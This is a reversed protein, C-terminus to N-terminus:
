RGSSLDRNGTPWHIQGQRLVALYQEDLILLGPDDDFRGRALDALRQRNRPQASILRAEADDPQQDRSLRDIGAVRLIRQAHCPPLLVALILPDLSTLQPFGPDAADNM